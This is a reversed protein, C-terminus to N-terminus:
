RDNVARLPLQLGSEGAGYVIEVGKGRVPLVFPLNSGSFTLRLRHDKEVLYDRAILDLSVSAEEGPKRDYLTMTGHTILRPLGKPPVDYLLANIQARRALPRVTLSLRPIGLLEYDRQSPSTTFSFFGAGAERRPGPVPIGLARLPILTPGSAAPALLRPKLTKWGVEGDPRSSLKHEGNDKRLFFQHIEIDPPPWQPETVVMHKWPSYFRVAPESLIGNEEEKLWYDFWRRTLEWIDKGWLRPGVGADLAHIGNSIYLMKPAELQQFYKMILNPEILEDNWAGVILMPCHAGSEERLASRRRMDEQHAELEGRRFLLTPIWKYIDNRPDLKTAWTATVTLLIGWAIKLSGNPTLSEELDTWGNMPVVTRVRPDRGAILFSHGGGYSIGTVGLAGEKLPVGSSETLWDIADILDDIELEPDACHVQDGSSGWGRCDYALVVYGSVAMYPAYLHCQWRSLGWSHIMIVAPFPGEGEPVYLAASLRTGDRAAMKFQEVRYGKRKGGASAM